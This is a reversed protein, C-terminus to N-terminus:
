GGRLFTQLALFEEPKLTDFAMGVRPWHGPTAEQWCVHVPAEVAAKLGPLSVILTGAAEVTDVPDDTAVQAGGVSLDQVSVRHSRGAFVLVAALHCPHRSFRRHWQSEGARHLLDPATDGEADVEGEASSVGGRAGALDDLLDNLEDASLIGRAM